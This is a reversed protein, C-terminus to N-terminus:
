EIEEKLANGINVADRLARGKARTAAMRILHKSIMSNVNRPSADGIETFVKDDEMTVKAQCICVYKNEESPFQLIDVEIGKLGQKHAEDLVGAYTPHEKGGQVTVTEIPM